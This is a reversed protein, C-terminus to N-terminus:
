GPSPCMYNKAAKSFSKEQYIAYIYEKYDTM